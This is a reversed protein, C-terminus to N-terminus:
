CPPGATRAAPRRGSAPHPPVPAAAAIMVVVAVAAAAPGSAWIRNGRRVAPVAAAGADPFGLDNFGTVKAAVFMRYGVLEPDTSCTMVRLRMAQPPVPAPLLSFVKVASVNRPLYKRCAACDRAHEVLRGRLPKTLEGAWGTLLAAREPCGLVGHRALIEGALAEELDARGRALIAQLGAEQLGLALAATAPDMGHRLTLELGEREAEGLSMVAQWAILRRDADPQDPRAIVADHTGGAADQRRGCEARALAYLWPRLMSPHRLRDIHADALVLTDRLAVQAADRSRLMFWCYRFLNEGHTDYLAAPAGPDRSRLADVLLPAKM